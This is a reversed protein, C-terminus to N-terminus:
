EVRFVLEVTAERAKAIPEFRWQNVADLAATNLRRHTTQIAEARGVSGDPMVTFRVQVTGSRLTSQLQRPFEPEVMKIAKLPTEVVPPPEAFVAAAAAPAATPALTEPLVAPVNTASLSAAALQTAEPSLAATSEARGAEVAVDAVTETIGRRDPNGAAANRRAGAADANREPARNNNPKAAVAAPAAAGQGPLIIAPKAGPKDAHFRIWQFVKDADRQARETPSLETKAKSADAGAQAQAAPVAALSTVLAVALGVLSPARRKSRCM